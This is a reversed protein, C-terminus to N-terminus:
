ATKAFPKLHAPIEPPSLQDFWHKDGTQKFKRQKVTVDLVFRSVRDILTTMVGMLSVVAARRLSRVPPESLIANDDKLTSNTRESASRLAHLQRYRDSGRPIELILRPHQAISVHTAFGLRHARHPCNRFVELLAPDKSKVCQKFCAFSLRQTAADFGNPHTPFHCYPVYPWGNRDYGRELLAERVLKENRPNYDILPVAGQKRAFEYNHLEDYKADLLHIRPNASHFRRIQEQLPIFQNGEQANGAITICAVPLEIGWQPEISTTIIANYGFIKEIKNPNSPLRRVGIRADRDYPLKPCRFRFSESPESIISSVSIGHVNSERFRLVLGHKALPEEVRFFKLNNSDVTSLEESANELTFSLITIKPRKVDEPFNPNPCETRVRCEKGPVIQAPDQIRYLVRDHVKQTVNDVTISACSDNFCCCGRYRAVSPYLTGDTALINYTLFGLKEVLTVMAHLVEQYRSEGLRARFNTFTAQCPICNDRLGAFSRYSQGRAPDRLIECFHKVDPIKDLYRSLDLVYLSVPDYCPGGFISYADASISRVFSFDITSAVLQSLGGQVSGDDNVAVFQRQFRYHSLWRAEEKPFPKRYAWNVAPNIERLKTIINAISFRTLDM